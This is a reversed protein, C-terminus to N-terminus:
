IGTRTVQAGGLITVPIAASDMTGGTLSVRRIAGGARQDILIGYNLSHYWCGDFQWNALDCGPATELQVAVSQLKDFITTRFIANSVTGEGARIGTLGDKLLTDSVVVTDITTSGSSTFHMIIQNLDGSISSRDIWLGNVNEVRMVHNSVTNGLAPDGKLNTIHIDQCSGSRQRATRSM